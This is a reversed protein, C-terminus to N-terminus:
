PFSASGLIPASSIFGLTITLFQFAEIKKKFLPALLRWKKSFDQGVGAVCLKRKPLDGSNVGTFSRLCMLEPHQCSGFRVMVVVVLAERDVAPM